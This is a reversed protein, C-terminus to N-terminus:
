AKNQFCYPATLINYAVGVYFAPLPFLKHYSCDYSLWRRAGVAGGSKLTKFSIATTTPNSPGNNNYWQYTVSVGNTVSTTVNAPTFSGGVCISRDTLDTLVPNTCCSVPATYTANATCSTAASFVASVTHSVGDSTQGTISYAQPSTFPANFVQSGGGTISVTLTGTTPANAFFVYGTLTYSNTAPNCVGPETTICNQFVLDQGTPHTLRHVSTNPATITQAATLWGNALARVGVNNDTLMRFPGTTISYDTDYVADWVAMQM